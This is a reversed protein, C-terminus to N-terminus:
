PSTIETRPAVAPPLNLTAVDELKQSVSKWHTGRWYLQGCKACVFYDDVWLYTKPPIRERMAEKEVPILEGGCRMCRSDAEPFDLEARVLALQEFKTLSPPVWLAKVAGHTILRRDLLPSDTTIVLADLRQAEALLHDDNIDQTWYTECGAARLWRALGGLGADCIIRRPLDITKGTRRRYQQVQRALRINIRALATSSSIALTGQATAAKRFLLAIGKERDRAGLEALLERFRRDFGRNIRSM